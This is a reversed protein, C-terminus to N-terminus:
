KRRKFGSLVSSVKQAVAERDVEEVVPQYPMKRKPDSALAYETVYAESLRRIVQLEWPTVVDELANCRVWAEIEMWSLPTLGMGTRTAAGASHFFSVLYEAGEAIEPIPIEQTEPVNEPPNNDDTDESSPLENVGRM